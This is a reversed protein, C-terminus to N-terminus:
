INSIDGDCLLQYADGVFDMMDTTEMARKKHKFALYSCYRTAFAAGYAALMLLEHEDLSKDHDWLNELYAKRWALLTSLIGALVDGQGGCRKLGGKIDVYLTKLGDSINDIRGKKLIMVGGLKNALNQCSSNEDMDFIRCLRSFEAINPTLVVNKYGIIIEPKNQVCCFGDKKRDFQVKYFGDVYLM